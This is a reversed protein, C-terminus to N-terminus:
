YWANILENIRHGLLEPHELPVMHGGANLEIHQVSPNGKLFPNRLRPICVDTFRATILAAPCQLKGYYEPLNHPITRFINAEIDRDFLLKQEDQHLRTVSTVYDKICREEMNKFLARQKFYSVLDENKHWREKRVKTKRAPTIRDILPNSKAFKFIFRAFGTILPPDIMILGNFLKPQQCCAIYSIVGGFSHGIALVQQHRKTHQSVFDILEEVQNQWNDNLPFKPNHAFKDLAFVDLTPAITDFLARYSGSPFGNAHAFHAMQKKNNM